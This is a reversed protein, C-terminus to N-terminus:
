QGLCLAKMDPNAIIRHIKGGVVVVGNPAEGPRGVFLVGCQTDTPVAIVTGQFCDKSCSPDNIIQGLKIGERKAVETAVAALNNKQNAIKKSSEIDWWAGSIAVSGVLALVCLGPKAADFLTDM